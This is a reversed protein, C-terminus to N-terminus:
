GLSSYNIRELSGRGSKSPENPVSRDYYFRNSGQMVSEASRDVWLSMVVDAVFAKMLNLIPHLFMQIFILKLLNFRYM